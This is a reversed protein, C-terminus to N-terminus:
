APTLKSLQARRAMHENAVRVAEDTRGWLGEIQAVIEPRATRPNGSHMTPQPDYELVLQTFEAADQGKLEAIVQLAFDIGATVGGGTIRNRDVCVREYSPEIGLAILPEYFPWYTAARYGELLGAMALLVSGTCIATVYTATKGARAIFDLLEQDKMIEPTGGGGAVFLVDLHDPVDDITITPNMTVGMDTPVAEMTKWIIHTKAHLGFATQPGALDQLTFGPFIVMGIQLQRDEIKNSLEDSM